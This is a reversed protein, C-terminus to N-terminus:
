QYQDAGTASFTCNTNKVLGCYRVKAFEHISKLPLFNHKVKACVHPEKCNTQKDVDTLPRNCCARKNTFDKANPAIEKLAEKQGTYASDGYLRTESGHLLNVLEQSDHVNDLTISARHTLSTRSDVGIYVKMGFYGQNGKKTQHMEPDRAKDAEQDLKPRRHHHRRRHHRWVPGAREFAPTQEHTGFIRSQLYDKLIGRIRKNGTNTTEDKTRNSHDSHVCDNVCSTIIAYVQETNGQSYIKLNTM